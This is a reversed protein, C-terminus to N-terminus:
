NFLMYNIAKVSIKATINKKKTKLANLKPDNRIVQSWNIKQVKKGKKNKKAHEIQSKFIPLM